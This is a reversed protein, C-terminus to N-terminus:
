DFRPVTGVPVKVKSGGTSFSRQWPVNPCESEEEEVKSVVLIKM